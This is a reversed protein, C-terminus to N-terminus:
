PALVVTILVLCYNTSGDFSMFLTLSVEVKSMEKDDSEIEPLYDLCAVYFMTDFRKHGLAQPTLWNWWEKLAWIDPCLGVELCFEAFCIPNDHVKKKWARIDVKDYNAEVAFADMKSSRQSPHRNLLLLGAEEFTERIATIRLAVESPLVNANLNEQQMLIAPETFIPPRNGSVNQGFKVLQDRPMGAAEFVAWWKPSFDALEVYGGPFVYANAMYSSKGSRKAMLLRYDCDDLPLVNQISNSDSPNSPSKVHAAIILSSAEKWPRPTFKPPPPAVERGPIGSSALWPSDPDILKVQWFKSTKFSFGALEALDALRSVM